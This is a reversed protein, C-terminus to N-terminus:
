FVPNSPDNENVKLSNNPKKKDCPQGKTFVTGRCNCLPQTCTASFAKSFREQNEAKQSFPAKKRSLEEVLPAGM